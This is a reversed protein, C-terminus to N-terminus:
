LSALHEMLADVLGLTHDRVAMEIVEPSSGEEIMRLLM